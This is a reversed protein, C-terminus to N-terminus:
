AHGSKVRASRSPGAQRWAPGDDGVCVPDSAPFTMELAADLKAEPSKAARELDPEVTGGRVNTGDRVMYPACQM